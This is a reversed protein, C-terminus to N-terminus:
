RDITGANSLTLVYKEICNYEETTLNAEVKMEPLLCSWQDTTYKDPNYLFHCNGCKNKYLVYGENLYTSDTGPWKKQAYSFHKSSPM